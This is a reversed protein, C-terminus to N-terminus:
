RIVTLMESNNIDRIVEIKESIDYKNVWTTTMKSPLLHISDIGPFAESEGIL